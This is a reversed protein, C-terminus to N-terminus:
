FRASFVADYRTLMADIGFRQLAKARAALGHQTAADSVAGGAWYRGFAQAMAEVDDPPVLLGDVGDSVVDPTGGV